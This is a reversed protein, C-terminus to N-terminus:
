RGDILHAAKYFNEKQDRWRAFDGERRLFDALEDDMRHIIICQDDDVLLGHEITDALLADIVRDTIGKGLTRILVTKITRTSNVPDTM